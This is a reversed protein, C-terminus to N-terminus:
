WFKLKGLDANGKAPGYGYLWSNDDKGLLTRQDGPENGTLGLGGQGLTEDWIYKPAGTIRETQKRGYDIADETRGVGYEVGEAAWGGTDAITKGASRVASFSQAVFYLVLGGVIIVGGTILADSIESTNSGRSTTKAM